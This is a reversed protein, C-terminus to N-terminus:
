NIREVLNKPFPDFDAFGVKIDNSYAEFIVRHEQQDRFELGKEFPNPPKIGNALYDWDDPVYKIPGGWYAGSSLNARRLATALMNSFEEINNVKLVTDYGQNDSITKKFKKLSPKELCSCFVFCNPHNLIISSNNFNFDINPGTFFGLNKIDQNMSAREYGKLHNTSSFNTKGQGEKSDSIGSAHKEENKFDYLTGIRISEGSIFKEAFEESIVKYVAAM